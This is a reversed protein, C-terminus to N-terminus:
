LWFDTPMILHQVVLKTPLQGAYKEREHRALYM